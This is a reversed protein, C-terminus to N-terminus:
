LSGAFASCHLSEIVCFRGVGSCIAFFSGPSTLALSTAISRFILFLTSGARVWASVGPAIAKLTIIAFNSLYVWRIEDLSKM